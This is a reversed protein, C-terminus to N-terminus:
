LQLISKPTKTHRWSFRSLDSLGEMVNKLCGFGVAPTGSSAEDTSIGSSGTRHPRRKTKSVQPLTAGQRFLTRKITCLAQVGGLSGVKM